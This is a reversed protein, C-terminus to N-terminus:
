SDFQVHRGALSIVASLLDDQVETGPPIQSQEKAGYGTRVLIPRCGAALAAEVDIRKDGVMVSETLDIDFRRAAEVLMGPLPKRCNCPLSYSGKGSPHHPCFYWADVKAGSDALMGAVQRHLTEVDEETYYGRAIGSQNSVVVVFYGAENLIRIADVAGPIFEFDEIRYLYEKEINVTGDRDLFVARRMRM